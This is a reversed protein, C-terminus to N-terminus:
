SEIDEVKKNLKNIIEMGSPADLEKFFILFQYEKERNKWQLKLTNAERGGKKNAKKLNRKLVLFHRLMNSIIRPTLTIVLGSRHLIDRVKEKCEEDDGDDKLM